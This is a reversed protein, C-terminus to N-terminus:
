RGQRRERRAHKVVNTLAEQSSGTSPPSSSLHTGACSGPRSEYALDIDLEFDLGHALAIREVLAEIAPGIGLQDLAAPRLRHDARCASSTVRRGARQCRSSSACTRPPRPRLANEQMVQLAGLEQLTEDHLERAWGSRERESSAIALKAERGRDCACGRDRIRPAPAFSELTLQHDATFSTSPGSTSSVLLVGLGQGRSRLPVACGAPAEIGLEELSQAAAPGIRQSSEMGTFDATRSGPGVGRGISRSGREGAAGHVVLQPGEQLLVYGSRAKM